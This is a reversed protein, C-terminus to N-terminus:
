LHLPAYLEGLRRQQGAQPNQERQHPHQIMMVEPIQKPQRLQGQWRAIWRIWRELAWHLYWHARGTTSIRTSSRVPGPGLACALGSRLRAIVPFCGPAHDFTVSM